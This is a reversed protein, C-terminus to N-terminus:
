NRRRRGRSPGDPRQALVDRLESDDKSKEKHHARVHRLLNDPRPYKHERDPCFPCVYGPSKHVLGHRIMENKRKFGNGHESRPCGQVPCYHPRDESHVNAHSNLLYQTLFPQATCDKFTCKYTGQGSSPSPNPNPPNLSNPHRSDSPGQELGQGPGQGPGPALPPVGAMKPYIPHNQLHRRHLNNHTNHSGHANGGAPNMAPRALNPPLPSQQGSVPHLPSSAPPPHRLHQQFPPLTQKQLQATSAPGPALDVGQDFTGRRSGSFTSPPPSVHGSIPPLQNGSSPHSAHSVSPQNELKERSKIYQAIPPLTTTKPTGAGPSLSNSYIGRASRSALTDTAIPSLKVHSFSTPSASSFAGPLGAVIAPPRPHELPTVRRPSRQHVGPSYSPSPQDSAAYSSPTLASASFASSTSSVTPADVPGSAPTHGSNSPSTYSYASTPDGPSTVAAITLLQPESNLTSSRFRSGSRKIRSDPLPTRETATSKKDKNSNSNQRSMTTRALAMAAIATYGEAPPQPSVPRPRQTQSRSTQSPQTPSPAQELGLEAMHTDKSPLNQGQGHKSKKSGDADADADAAETAETTGKAEVQRPQRSAENISIEKPSTMFQDEDSDEMVIDRGYADPSPSRILATLSAISPLTTQSLSATSILYSSDHGATKHDLDIRAIDDLYEEDKEPEPGDDYEGSHIEDQESGDSFDRDAEFNAINPDRGDTMFRILVADGLSPKIKPRNSSTERSSGALPHSVETVKPPPTPSLRLRLRNPRLVPSDRSPMGDPYDDQYGDGISLTPDLANM